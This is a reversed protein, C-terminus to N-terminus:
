LAEKGRHRLRSPPCASLTAVQRVIPRQGCAGPVPPLHRRTMSKRSRSRPATPTFRMSCPTARAQVRSISRDSFGQARMAAVVVALQM